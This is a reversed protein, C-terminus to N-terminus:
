RKKFGYKPLYYLIAPWFLLVAGIWIYKANQTTFNRHFIDHLVIFMLGINIIMGTLILPLLFKLQRTEPVMLLATLLGAAFVVACISFIKEFRNM